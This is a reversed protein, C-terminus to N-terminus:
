IWSIPPKSVKKCLGKELLFDNTPQIDIEFPKLSKLNTTVDDLTVEITIENNLYKKYLYDNFINNKTFPSPVNNSIERMKRSLVTNGLIERNEISYDRLANMITGGLFFDFEWLSKEGRQASYTRSIPSGNVIRRMQPIKKDFVGDKIKIEVIMDGNKLAQYVKFTNDDFRKSFKYEVSPQIIKPLKYPSPSCWYYGKESQNTIYNYLGASGYAGVGIRESAEKLVDLFDAGECATFFVKTSPNILPKFSDLFTNDFMYTDIETQTMLLQGATGHSGIVFEDTKVGKKVLGKVFSVASSLSTFVGTVIGFKQLVSLAFEEWGYLPFILRVRKISPAPKNKLLDFYKEKEVGKYQNKEFAGDKGLYDSTPKDSPTSPTFLRTTQEAIVKKVLGVLESEKLRFIKKM